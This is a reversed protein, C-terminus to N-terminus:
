ARDSYGTFGDHNEKEALQADATLLDLIVLAAAAEIVPVARQVICPDHRGKIELVTNKRESLSVTEQPQAISPTPKIGVRFRLPMGTTIGGLIGGSHNTKTLIRGSGDICFPDNAQSGRMESLAFGDGFEVGKVAPIGFLVRALRNEVGDFMPDGLGAPLGTVACEVTGGVSDLAEKAALIENQMAEGQVDSIVPFAKEAIEAFLAADPFLPFPDDQVSGVSRLHAGIEIGRSSLIQKAIGGAACLPATLRGSFHGGGRMDAKGNWKVGATYDAHSPRPCDALNSYDGSRTNTNAIELCLPFGNTKGDTVGSIFRPVDPEKRSTSLANRGGQRREMFRMLRDTDIPFGAPLGDIVAGIGTGHSEGFVSVRLREGFSSAM